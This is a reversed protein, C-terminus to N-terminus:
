IYAHLLIQNEEASTWIYFYRLFECKTSTMKEDNLTVRTLKKGTLIEPFLPQLM